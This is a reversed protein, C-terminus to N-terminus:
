KLTAALLATNECELLDSLKFTTPPIKNGYIDIDELKVIRDYNSKPSPTLAAIRAVVIRNKMVLKIYANTQFATWFQEYISILSHDIM